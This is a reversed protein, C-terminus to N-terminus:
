LTVTKFFNTLYMKQFVTVQFIYMVLAPDPDPDPPSSEPGPDLLFARIRIGLVAHAIGYSDIPITSDEIPLTVDVFHRCLPGNIL